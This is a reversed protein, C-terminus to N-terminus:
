TEKESRKYDGWRAGLPFLDVPGSPICQYSSNRTANWYIRRTEGRRGWQLKHIFHPPACESKWGLPWITFISDVIIRNTHIHTHHTKNIVFWLLLLKGYYTNAQGIIFVNKNQNHVRQIHYKPESKLFEHDNPGWFLCKGPSKWHWFIFKSIGM